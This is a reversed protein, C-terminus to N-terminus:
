CRGAAETIIFGPFYVGSPAILYGLTDSLVGCFAAMVPGFVMSGLATVFFQVNINLSPGIPIKVTKLALRLALRSTLLAQWAEYEEDYRLPGSALTYDTSSQVSFRTRRGAMVAVDDKASPKEEVYAATLSEMVDYGNLFRVQVSDPCQLPVLHVTLEGGVTMYAAEAVDAADFLGAPDANFTYVQGDEGADATALLLGGATYLDVAVEGCVTLFFPYWPTTCRETAVCMVCKDGDPDRPNRMRSSYITQEASVRTGNVWFSFVGRASPQLAMGLTGYLSQSLIDAIGRIRITADSDPTYTEELIKEGDKKLAFTITRNAQYEIDAADAAFKTPSVYALDTNM